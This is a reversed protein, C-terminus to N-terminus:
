VETIAADPDTLECSEVMNAWTGGSESIDAEIVLPVHIWPFAKMVRTVGNRYIINKVTEIEEDKVLVVIADHIQGIIRSQLNMREFDEVDWILAQLLTHFGSGQICRNACETYSMPGYCRCGLYGEVFGNRQYSDWEAIRWKNYVAFRQNWFIDDAEKVHREWQDYTTIGCDVAIHEKTEPPMKTWMRQACTKYAAGYFSSFVYGTKISQREAKSVEDHKRFYMDAATDRHMDSTPDCLYKVMNPDHHYSASIMVELSKYDAEMYRWGPPAVFLSRLVKKMEKDRKPINQFNPSDASSRYTRPGGSEGGAGTSLNFFPRILYQGTPEDYVAERVYSKLFTDGMKSYHRLELISAIIPSDISELTSVSTDRKGDPCPIKMIDYLLSALQTPSGANFLQGTIRTYKRGEESEAIAKLAAAKKDEIFKRLDDVKDIAIPLGGSQVKSLAVMGKMFFKFFEYLSQGKFEQGDEFKRGVIKDQTEFQAKQIDRLMITYLSDQACYNAIENDPVHKSDALLNLSNCSRADEGPMTGAMYPDAADDYGLVGLEVYTHFKLGVKQNNDLVHAGICTDWDWNVPWDTRTGNLGAKFHTWCTEYDAKHAILKATTGPKYLEHWAEILGANNSHWKFGIARPGRPGHWALSAHTIRQETRHPKLGTTEYDISLLPSGGEVEASEKFAERIWKAAVDPDLTTRIDRPIVPFPKDVHAAARLIHETLYGIPANDPQFKDALNLVFPCDYTPCIWANFYRDPICKGFFESAQVNKIRGKLRGFIVAQTAVIGLPIIVKPKLRKILTHLQGECCLSRKATQEQRSCPCPVANCYAAESFLEEPLKGCRALNLLLQHAPRHVISPFKPSEHREKCPYDLVFLIGNSMSGEVETYEMKTLGCDACGKKNITKTSTTPPAGLNFFGM